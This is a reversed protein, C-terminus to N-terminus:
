KYLDDQQLHRNIAEILAELDYEVQAAHLNKALEALALAELRKREIAEAEASFLLVKDEPLPEPPTEDALAYYQENRISFGSGAAPDPQWEADNVPLWHARGELKIFQGNLGSLHRFIRTSM